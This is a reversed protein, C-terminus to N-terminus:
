ASVGSNTPADGAIVAGLKETVALLTKESLGPDVVEVQPAPPVNKNTRARVLMTSGRSGDQVLLRKRLLILALVFRFALRQSERERESAGGDAQPADGFEAPDVAEATQEFLELLSQDDVLLRRKATPDPVHGRWFGMVMTGRPPRAGGDWAEASYDIRVFDESDAAQALVGVYPEGTTLERGTSACRRTSSGISYSTGAM